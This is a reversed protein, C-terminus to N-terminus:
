GNRRGWSDEFIEVYKDSNNELLALDISDLRCSDAIEKAEPLNMVLSFLFMEVFNEQYSEQTLTLVKRIIKERDSDFDKVYFDHRKNFEYEERDCEDNWNM